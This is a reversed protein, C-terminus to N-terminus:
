QRDTTDEAPDGNRLEALRAVTDAIARNPTSAGATLGVRLHGEPLWGRAIVPEKAGFPLHRIEEISRLEGADQVHYAPCRSRAVELLHTTNSSNYGGIVLVLDLETGNVLDRIADQRDQTASCITDFSRFRAERESEGHRRALADGIMAAIELSESALMTTQNAVGIHQLDRAPDFGVSRAGAEIRAMLEGGALKGEITDCVLSAQARDRVVLFHGGHARAQSVTAITEEHYFKGHVLSTFGDRAYKEVRKWVHVVSGCTTDVLICGVDRLRRFEEAAVGFAPILVVDEATIDAATHAASKGSGSLFLIGMERMRANVRPNHIIETLLFIRKDPFKTRAEYAMDIAKDVGYCFGFEKALHFRFGPVDLVGQNERMATILASHYDSAVAGAIERKLGLSSRFYTKGGQDSVDHAVGPQHTGPGTVRFGTGARRLLGAVRPGPALSIESEGRGRAGRGHRPCPSAANPCGRREGGRGGEIGGRTPSPRV